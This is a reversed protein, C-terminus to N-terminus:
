ELAVEAAQRSKAMNQSDTGLRSWIDLLYEGQGPVVTAEYGVNGYTGTTHYAVIDASRAPLPALLAAVALLLVPLRNM